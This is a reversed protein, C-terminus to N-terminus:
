PIITLQMKGTVFAGIIALTAGSVLYVLVKYTTLAPRLKELKGDISEQYAQQKNYLEIMGTLLLQDLTARPIKQGSAICSQMTKFVDGNSM